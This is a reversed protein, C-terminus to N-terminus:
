FACNWGKKYRIKKGLIGYIGDYSFEVRSEKVTKKGRIYRRGNYDKGAEFPTLDNPNLRCERCDTHCKYWGYGTSTVLGLEKHEFVQKDKM